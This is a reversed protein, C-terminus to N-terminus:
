LISEVGTVVGNTLTIYVMKTQFVGPLFTLVQDSFYDHYPTDLRYRYCRSEVQEVQPIKEVRGGFILKIKNREEIVYGSPLLFKSIIERGTTQNIVIYAYLCRAKDYEDKKPPEPPHRCTVELQTEQPLRCNVELKPEPPLQCNVVM